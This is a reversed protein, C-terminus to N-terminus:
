FYWCNYKSYTNSIRVFPLFRMSADPYFDNTSISTMIYVIFLSGGEFSYFVLSATVINCFSM